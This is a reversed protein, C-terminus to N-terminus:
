WAGRRWEVVVWACAGRQRPQGQMGSRTPSFDPFQEPQVDTQQQTESERPKCSAVTFFRAGTRPASAGTTSANQFRRYFLLLLIDGMVELRLFIRVHEVTDDSCTDFLFDSYVPKELVDVQSTRLRRPEVICRQHPSPTITTTGSVPDSLTSRQHASTHM